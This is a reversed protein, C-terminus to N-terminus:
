NKNRLYEKLRISEKSAEALSLHKSHTFWYEYHYYQYLHWLLILQGFIPVLYVLEFPQLTLFKRKMTVLYTGHENRIVKVSFRHKWM